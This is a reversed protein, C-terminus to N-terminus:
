RGWAAASAARCSQVLAARPPAPLRPRVAASSLLPTHPSARRSLHWRVDPQRGRRDFYADLVDGADHMVVTSLASLAALLLRSKLFFASTQGRTSDNNQLM